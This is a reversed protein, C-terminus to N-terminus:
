KFGKIIAGARGSYQKATKELKENAYKLMDRAVWNIARQLAPQTGKADLIGESKNVIEAVLKRDNAASAEGNNAAAFRNTVKASGKAMVESANPAKRKLTDAAKVWGSKLYSTASKRRSIISRAAKGVASQWNNGKATSVKGSKLRKREFKGAMRKAAIKISLDDKMLDAEIQKGDAKPTTKIVGAKSDVLVSWAARNLIDAEDKKTARSYFQMAQRLESTDLKLEIGM